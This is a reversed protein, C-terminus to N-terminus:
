AGTEGALARRTRVRESTEAENSPDDIWAEGLGALMARLAHRRQALLPRVIWVRDEFLTARAMGALGRRDAHADGRARRMAVTEAPDDMTHGTLVLDTQAETAAAALLGYRALRAAQSIGSAPKDGTWTRIAQSVGLRESIAAVQRAEAAAEARLGHDV